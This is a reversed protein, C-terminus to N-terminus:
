CITIFRFSKGLSRPPALKIRSDGACVCLEEELVGGRTNALISQLRYSTKSKAERCRGESLAGVKIGVIHRGTCWQLRGGAAPAEEGKHCKCTEVRIDGRGTRM